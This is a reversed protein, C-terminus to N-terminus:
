LRIEFYKTMDWQRYAARIAHMLRIQDVITASNLSM